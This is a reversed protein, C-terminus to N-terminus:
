ILNMEWVVGFVFVMRVIGEVSWGSANIKIEKGNFIDGSEETLAIVKAQKVEKNSIIRQSNYKMLQDGAM